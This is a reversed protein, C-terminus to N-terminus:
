FSASEIRYKKELGTELLYKALQNLIGLPDQLGSAGLNFKGKM